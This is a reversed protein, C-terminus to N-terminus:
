LSLQRAARELEVEVRELGRLFLGGFRVFSRSLQYVSCLLCPTIIFVGDWPHPDAQGSRGGGGSASHRSDARPADHRMHASLPANIAETRLAFTAARRRRQTSM